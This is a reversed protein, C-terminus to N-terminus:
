RHHVTSKALPIFFARSNKFGRGSKCQGRGSVLSFPTNQSRQLTQPCFESLISVALVPYSTVLPADIWRLRRSPLIYQRNWKAEFPTFIQTLAHCSRDTVSRWPFGRCNLGSVHPKCGTPKRPSLSIFAREVGERLYERREFRLSISLIRRTSAVVFHLVVGMAMTYVIYIGYIWTTSAHVHCQLRRM